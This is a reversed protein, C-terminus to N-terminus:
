PTVDASARKLNVGDSWIWAAKGTAITVGTGTAGICQIAQGGTAQNNVFWMAGDSLPFVLNRAATLATGTGVDITLCEYEAPSLTKNADTAYSVAARGRKQGAGSGRIEASERIIRNAFDATRARQQVSHDLTVVGSAAVAKVILCARGDEFDIPIDTTTMVELEGNSKGWLYSTANDAVSANEGSTNTWAMGGAIFITNAPVTVVLGAVTCVVGSVVGPLHQLRAEHLTDLFSNQLNAGKITQFGSAADGWNPVGNGTDDTQAATFGQLTTFGM